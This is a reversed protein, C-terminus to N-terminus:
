RGLWWALANAACYAPAFEPGLLLATKAVVEGELATATVVSVEDLGTQAPLGTRPDILHHIEGWRRRRVSSTAAAQDRLLLTTGAVAVPWEGRARLDGGLNVLSNAGLITCLRDAMWGKAIGGLDIGTGQAVRAGGAGVELVDPLPALPRTREMTATAPGHGLSRTYGIATMSPLVAANVLGASIAYADLAARLVSELEASVRHWEGAHANLQSLESDPSFRTLKEATRRIWREGEALDADVAFLSCTTGMAEFHRSAVDPRM